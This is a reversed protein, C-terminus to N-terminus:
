GEEVACLCNPTISSLMTGCDFCPLCADLDTGCGV